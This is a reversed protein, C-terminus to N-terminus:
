YTAIQEDSLLYKIRKWARQAHTTLEIIEGTAKDVFDPGKTYYKFRGPYLQKLAQVTARHVATGFFRANRIPDAMYLRYEQATMLGAERLATAGRAAQQSAVRAIIQAASEEAAVTTATAAAGVGGAAARPLAAAGASAVVTVVTAGWFGVSYSRSESDVSGIDFASRAVKTLNFTLADGVGAAGNVLWEPLSPPVFSVAGPPATMPPPSAAAGGAGLPPSEAGFGGYGVVVYPGDRSYGVQVPSNLLAGAATFAAKALPYYGFYTAVAGVVILVAAAIYNLNHKISKWLKKLHKSFWSFGSPDILTLPNNLVYSYRNLSQSMLPAQVEPDASIFRAINPDYVRGNMHILDVNDLEEHFTFGRHTFSAITTWDGAPLSGSWATANRRKGFADYALRLVVSGSENTAVDLSGLHDKHLYRVDNTGSSRLTRIAIPQQGAFIYHKYEIVASPKTVKEFLDGVYVTTETGAPLSGGAATVAVQKFRARDAGYFFQAYSSGQDIRNPMNYSYWTVNNGSRKTMNGNADYCYVATGVKRVAHPQTHTYYTCGAQATSYNYSSSSAGEAKATINGLADYTMDLNPTAVGNLRSYDLRYLNDYYFDETLSLNNDKRQTLNGAKDWQYSLNQVQSTAGTTVGGLLGTVNDYTSYTHLGNGLQEDIAQGAANGAIQEWYITTPTNFDRVRKLLGYSYDYQVKFRSGPVASTSTPYTVTELLGTTTSYGNSVVFTAADANTTANQIRGASDYTFSQSFAGPSTVSTLKGIDHATASSGYVFTTTGEPEVRTLPRSLKDYTLTVVQSKADTQTWLEGTPYYTYTWNGMDPDATTLKFGRLNFTNVIQNSAPDITKKTNGFQDYEYRTIGSAPDTMKVVQGIANVEKTTIKGNPDTLTQVLRNYGYQTTQTGSDAESIRRLEQTPRGVLDYTTTTFYVPMGTFYPESRQVARGQSDYSVAINSLAGSVTPTQQFLTRGLADVFDRSSRILAGTTDLERKEIQYRLRADGCYGNSVNCASYVLETKTGDPRTERTLRGFGDHDFTTVLQNADTATAAVGLAFDYTKASIAGLADTASTPMVGQTGFSASTTRSVVNLADITESNVHGFADYGYTTTVKISTDAPEIIQQSIRCTAPAASDKVFQVTRTQAALTPTTNTVTRQTAVDFCWNATDAAAYNTTTSSQYSEGSGTLDATAMTTNTVNGYSDFTQTTTGRAVQLGNSPGGVENNTQESQSVYPFHRDNYAAGQVPLEALTNTLQSITPGSSSQYTTAQSVFGTYPFDQRFTSAVKVGTRGDIMERSVFGLLGRGQAHVRLGLYKQTVSYSGGIGDSATYSKVVQMAPQIDVQPFVAAAPCIPNVPCKTYVASDTLPAYQISVTNGFGDMISSTLDPVAGKHLRVRYQTSKFGLDRLGDGNLDLSRIANNDTSSALPIPLAAEFNTGTSRLMYWSGSTSSPAYLLDARGDSDYDETFGNTSFGTPVTVTVGTSLGTASGFAVAYGASTYAGSATLVDTFGDGNFDAVLPYYDCGINTFLRICNWSLAPVFSTGTSTLANWTTTWTCQNFNICDTVATTQYLFDTRGDGNFDVLRSRNSAGEGPFAVMEVGSSLVATGADFTATGSTAGSNKAVYFYHNSGSTVAYLLDQRGDGDFDAVWEDGSLSIALNTDTLALTSGNWRLIQRTTGVAPANFLLGMRGEAFYDIPQAKAYQLNTTDGATVTTPTPPDFGGSSNATMFHWKKTGSVDQPYVLDDRGDGNIDLAYSYEMLASSNSASVTDGTNWGSTGNQWSIMTPALCNGNRDCEQVSGLRSRPTSGSTNYSLQYKRVLRWGVGPENYQTEIRNLRNTEKVVGGYLQAILVDNAPRTDYFFVVKYAAALGTNTTYSIETPRYSGNPAGDEQYTITMYNGHRDTVKNLAWTRVTTSAPSNVAQIRSNETGGYEFKLGAKSEVVFSAAGNGATGVATVRSFTEIETQYTSGAAGYPGANTLRLKNGDLCLRDATALTAPESVGDQAVTKNCRDIESLGGLSWGVGLLGNGGGSAYNISLQPQMGAVGPPVVIPISYTAAGTDAVAFSGVTHGVATTPLVGTAATPNHATQTVAGGTVVNAYYNTGGSTLAQYYVGVGGSGDFNGAILRVSDASWTVNTALAVGNAFATGATNGALLYSPRSSNRAQLLVDEGGTGDFNGVIITSSLPSWDVGAYMRSWHEVGVDQFPAAGGVSKVVGNMGPPYSPIPITVDYDIMVFKPRAQILLDDWGDGNYDLVFINSDQTSWKFAAWDTSLWPGQTPAVTFQYNGDTYVVANKAATSPAQATAKTAQFFLDAKGNGDFDGALIRHQDASWELNLATNGITQHISTFKGNEDTLLLFSDGATRRQLLLDDGNKGDFDAVIAVYQNGSWPIGLYNSPWSQFPINPASGDSRAIGSAKSADKAIYLLDTKDDGDFDGPYLDYDQASWDTAANVTAAGILGFVLAASRIGNKNM